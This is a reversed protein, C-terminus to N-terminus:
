KDTRKACMTQGGRHWLVWCSTRVYDVLYIHATNQKLEAFVPYAHLM